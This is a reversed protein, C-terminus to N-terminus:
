KIKIIAWDQNEFVIDDDTALLDDSMVCFDYDDYLCEELDGRSSIDVRNKTHLKHEAIVGAIM